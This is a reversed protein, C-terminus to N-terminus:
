ERDLRPKEDRPVKGLGSGVPNQPEEAGKQKQPDSGAAAPRCAHRVSESRFVEPTVEIHAALLPDVGWICLM